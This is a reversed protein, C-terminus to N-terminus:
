GFAGMLIPIFKSASAGKATWSVQLGLYRDKRSIAMTADKRNDGYHGFDQLSPVPSHLTENLDVKLM